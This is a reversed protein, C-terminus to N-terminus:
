LDLHKTVTQVIPQTASLHSAYPQTPPFHQKLHDM